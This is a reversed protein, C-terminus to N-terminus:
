LSIRTVLYQQFTCQLHSRAFSSICSLHESKILELLLSSTFSPIYFKNTTQNLFYATLIYRKEIYLFVYSCIDLLIYVWRYVSLFVQLVVKAFYQFFITKISDELKVNWVKFRNTQKQYTSSQNSAGDSRQYSSFLFFTWWSENLNWSKLKVIYDRLHLKSRPFSTQGKAKIFLLKTKPKVVGLLLFIDISCGPSFFTNLTLDFTLSLQIM